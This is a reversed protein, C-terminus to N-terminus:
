GGGAGEEKEFVVERDAGGWEVDEDADEVPGEAEYVFAQYDGVPRLQRQGGIQTEM